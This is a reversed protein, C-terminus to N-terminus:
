ESADVIQGTEMDFIHWWDIRLTAARHLASELNDFDGRFDKWGGSPYYLDGGFLLFQRM